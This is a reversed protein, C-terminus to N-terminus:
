QPVAAKVRWEAAREDYGQGPEQRDWTEYLKVLRDVCRAVYLDSPPRAASLVRHAELLEKESDSLRGLRRLCDGFHSRVNGTQWDEAGRSASMQECAARFLPEAETPRDSENLTAGLASLTAAHQAMRQPKPNTQLALSDRLLPEAAAYDQRWFLTVGLVHLADAMGAADTPARRQLDLIQRALTEAEDLKQQEILFRALKIMHSVTVPDAEGLRATMVELAERQLREAEEPKGHRNLCYAATTLTVAFQAPLTRRFTENITLAERLYKEADTWDGTQELAAGLMTLTHVLPVRSPTEVGRLIVLAERYREAASQVDGRDFAVGGLNHLIQVVRPDGKGAIRLRIDLAEKLLPEAADVRGSQLLCVALSNLTTAVAEHGDGLLSRRTALAQRYLKEAEFRRGLGILSEALDQESEAVELSDPSLVRRRLELARRLHPEAVRFDQLSVYSNGIAGRLAAEVLPKDEFADGIRGAADNLMEMVTVSPGRDKEPNVSALTESLFRTVVDAEGRAVVAADAQRQSEARAAEARFYHYTSFISGGTVALLVAMVAGFAARNQRAYAQVQYILSPPRASIPEKNLTRRLDDALDAASRYRRERDKEMAKLLVTEIDGRLLSSVTSPRPPQFQRIVQTAVAISMDHLDYPLRNCLVEYLLVGLTYVDSRADLDRADADCQEPSMYQLTGVLQGVETQLTTIALDSDTARAVGFDIIKVQGHSDILINAPKLDRHIIGKQHGHQVADCVQALLAIRDRHGINKERFYDTIRRANPIYEMAFFPVSGSGDDFTGAEFIQAIGRHDLRALLQAEYEFRRMANRSAVGHKMVKVAVARRPNEQLAEYVTGMGGSAILRRVRYHGIKEPVTNGSVPTGQTKTAPSRHTSPLDSPIPIPENPSLNPM